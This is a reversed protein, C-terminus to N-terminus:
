DRVKELSLVYPLNALVMGPKVGRATVRGVLKGDQPILKVVLKRVGFAAADGSDIFGTSMGEVGPGQSQMELIKAAPGKGLALTASTSSDVQLRIREEAGGNRPLGKWQGIFESTAVFPKSPPGAHMRSNTRPLQKDFLSSGQM